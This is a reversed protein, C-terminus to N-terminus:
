EKTYDTTYYWKVTDGDNLKYSYAGYSPKIGNVMYLWGSNGGYDFEKLGGIGRVYTSAGFGSTSISVGKQAALTKLAGYVSTNKELSLTGSMLTSDVGIVQMNVTIKGNTPQQSSSSNNSQNNSTQGSNSQSQNTSSQSHGASSSKSNSQATYSSKSNSKNEDNTKTEDTSQTSSQSDSQTSESTEQTQDTIEQKEEKKTEKTNKEKKNKTTDVQAVQNTKYNGTVGNYISFSGIFVFSITIFLIVIRKTKDMNKIKNIFEKM